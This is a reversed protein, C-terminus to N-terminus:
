WKQLLSRPSEVVGLREALPARGPRGDLLLQQSVEWGLPRIATTHAFEDRNQVQMALMWGGGYFGGNRLSQGMMAAMCIAHLQAQVLLQV